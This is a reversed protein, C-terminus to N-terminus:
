RFTAYANAYTMKKTYNQARNPFILRFVYMNTANTASIASSKQRSTHLPLMHNHGNPSNFGISCFMRCAIRKGFAIVAIKAPADNDTAPRIMCVSNRLGKALGYVKPTDEPALRPTASSVIIPTLM